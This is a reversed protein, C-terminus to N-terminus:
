RQNTHAYMSVRTAGKCGFRHLAKAGLDAAFISNKKSM